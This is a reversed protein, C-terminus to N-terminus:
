IERSDGAVQQDNWGSKSDLKALIRVLQERERATLPALAKQAMQDTLDGLATVLKAGKPTIQMTKTRKDVAGEKRLILGKQELRGIVHGITTRDFRILEALRTADIGPNGQISILAAFQVPTIDHDRALANFAANAMQHARRILYGPQTYMDNYKYM